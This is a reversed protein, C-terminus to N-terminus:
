DRATVLEPNSINWHQGDMKLVTAFARAKNADDGDSTGWFVSRGDRLNFSLSYADKVELSEVQARLEPSLASIAAAAQAMQESGPEVSGTIEVTGEPPTERVFGEGAADILESDDGEKKFAIAKHEVLEVKLKSPFSRSVTASEVWPLSAVGAAAERANVRVLNTGIGVRTAEEVAASDIHENGEVVFDGVRLIPFVWLAAGVLLGVAVMAAIVGAIRKAPSRVGKDKRM